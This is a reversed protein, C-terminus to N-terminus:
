GPLWGLVGWWGYAVLLLPVTTIAALLVFTRTADAISINAMALAVIIPPLQYPFLPTAYGLVQAMGIADVPWGTLASIDGFLPVVLSPASPMTAIVAVFATLMAVWSMVAFDGWSETPAVSLILRGLLQEAGTTTMVGALGLIAAIHLLPPLHVRSGFEKFPLIGMVPLLTLIAAIMGIWAVSIGHVVDTTWLALTIVLILALRRGAPTMAPREMPAAPADEAAATEGPRRRGFLWTIVLVLGTGKVLAIVPLNLLIYEGYSLTEGYLQELSGALVLNPLNAPLIATPLLYSGLACALVLGVFGRTGPRYGLRAALVTVIPILITVRGITSPLVLALAASVTVILGALGAYGPTRRPDRPVIRSVVWESLGSGTFAVGLILGSFILWFASTTFGSFIVETPAIGTVAVAALFILGTLAEPLLGLAWFGVAFAILGSAIATQVPVGSLHLALGGAGALAVVVLSLRNKAAQDM